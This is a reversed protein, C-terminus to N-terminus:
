RAPLRRVPRPVRVVAFHDCGTQERLASSPAIPETGRGRRLAPYDFIKCATTDIALGSREDIAITNILDGQWYFNLVIHGDLFPKGSRGQM